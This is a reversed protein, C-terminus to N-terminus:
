FGYRLTVGFTRQDGLVGAYHGANGGAPLLQEFYDKDLLNRSWIYGSLGYPAKFGARANLVTYGDINLYTSPSSSSSFSSRFSDDLAIFFKVDKGISKAAIAFEGGISGAWKSVGPLVGGSIDKFAVQVGDVTLGTEELPLPANTFKVYKADTYAAAGYFSFYENVRINADFEIGKVNVKEANAIYGRNVGLEASQVNTQYDKIDSNHFTLNLTLNDTPTTKIGLEYHKTDEPKIVALDTAAEGNITPLGAVNVGVPKFSTSYTAFANIRRSPKYAVTLQYTFNNEDADAKYQQSSYVANKLAILAPDTTELGGKAIRNYDVVKKDYNFRAGPLVHLGEVIEWDLSAFVAASQSKISANTYIGYGEFLGPTKWLESTSNQSFRWQASGSEETGTTKVEQDMYFVGVVGSLNSSLEGAYRIEQSWNRHKSPNQSKSLAQLGTFDRDNSPDWNWYRWATTSTLTGPGIKADLNLSVGGLQNGSRWPTDHDIKRDFANLSPLSYGLDATIADFQRYAPRLTPAVGAVVQAYGDPKQDTFDGALTISLNESYKYLLQARLGLNNIDNVSYGTKVNEILGDRQTGSFSLRAAFKNSLPGSISAKAQIYGYNGFSTEFTAEPIFSAKRTIINFAGASTNKGFLTGQPGRLVEIREVDIFDITAAAPRAYYVGDVYFGVGPDLGDNTLGFPSGIGRINIGTNRPNSTYLQVSPILEKVRNVNFAGSQEIQSGGIVSIPIPVEQLAESRRRSTVVIEDLLSSELLVLEVPTDQIQLIQFDQAKYGVSSVQLYFPPEQRSTISFAGNEDASVSINTGRIVVTAHPVPVGNTRKIIGTVPSQAYTFGTSLVTSGLTLIFFLTIISKM